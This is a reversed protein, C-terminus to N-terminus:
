PCLSTCSDPLLLPHNLFRLNPPLSFSLISILSMSIYLYQSLFFPLNLFPITLNSPLIFPLNLIHTQLPLPFSLLNIGHPQLPLLFSFPFNFSMPKYLTHSSPCHPTSTTSIFLPPPTSNKRLPTPFSVYSTLAISTHLFQSCFSPPLSYPATSIIPVFLPLTRINPQLPLPFSSLSILVCLHPITPLLLM